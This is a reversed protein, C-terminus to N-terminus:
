RSSADHPEHWAIAAAAARLPGPPARSAPPVLAFRGDREDRALYFYSVAKLRGAQRPAYGRVAGSGNQREHKSGRRSRRSTAPKLHTNGDDATTQRELAPQRRTPISLVLVARSGEGLRARGSQHKTIGPSSRGGGRGDMPMEKSKEKTRAISERWESFCAERFADRM